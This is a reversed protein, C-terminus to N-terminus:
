SFLPLEMELISRTAASIAAAREEVAARRSALESEAADLGLNGPTGTATRRDIAADPDHDKLEGLSAAVARYADRFPVGTEVLEYAADTAFVDPTFAARLRDANVTTRNVTLLMVRASAIATDMARFLPGKTEQFDRNYGSPLSRIVNRIQTAYASLTSSKARVLELGDPNRKQPMISSGTCLEDPLSFYGFEPLSFLILDQAMKSLTLGLQDLADV